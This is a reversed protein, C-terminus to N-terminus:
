SGVFYSNTPHFLFFDTLHLHHSPVKLDELVKLVKFQARACALNYITFRRITFLSVYQVNAPKLQQCFM